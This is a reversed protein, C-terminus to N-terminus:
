LGGVRNRCFVTLMDIKKCFLSRLGSEGRGEYVSELRFSSLLRSLLFIKLTILIASISYLTLIKLEQNTLLILFGLV